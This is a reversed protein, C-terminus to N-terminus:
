GQILKDWRQRTATSADKQLAAGMQRYSITLEACMGKATKLGISVKGTEIKSIYAQGLGTRESLEAQSLGMM